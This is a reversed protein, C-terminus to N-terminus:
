MALWGDILRSDPMEATIRWRGAGIVEITQSENFPTESLNRSFGSGLSQLVSFIHFRVAHPRAAFVPREV